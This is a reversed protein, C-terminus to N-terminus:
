SLSMTSWKGVKMSSELSNEGKCGFIALIMSSAKLKLSKEMLFNKSADNLLISMAISFEAWSFSKSSRFFYMRTFSCFCISFM